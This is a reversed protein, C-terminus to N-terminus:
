CLLGGVMAWCRSFCRFGVVYPWVGLGLFDCLLFFLFGLFGIGVRIFGLLGFCFECPFSLRCVFVVM